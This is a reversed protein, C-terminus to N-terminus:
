FEKRKYVGRGSGAVHLLVARRTLFIWPYDSSLFFFQILYLPFTHFRLVSCNQTSSPKSKTQNKTAINKRLAHHQCQTAETNEESSDLCEHLSTMWKSPFPLIFRACKKLFPSFKQSTHFSKFPPFDSSLPQSILFQHTTSWHVSCVSALLFAVRFSQHLLSHTTSPQRLALSAEAETILYTREM